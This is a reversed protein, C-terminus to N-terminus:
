CRTTLGVERGAHRRRRVGRRPAKLAEIEQDVDTVSWFAQSARSTGANPTPYLFAATGDAFAYVVGGNVEQRPVFRLTDEYFHRARAM